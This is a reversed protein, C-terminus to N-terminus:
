RWTSWHRSWRRVGVLRHRGTGLLINGLPGHAVLVVGAVALTYLAPLSDEFSPGM